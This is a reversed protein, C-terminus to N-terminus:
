FSDRNRTHEKTTFSTILLIYLFLFVMTVFSGYNIIQKNITEWIVIFSENTSGSVAPQELRQIYLPQWFIYTLLAAIIGHLWRAFFFPSFRIDTEALLSAVQAHVSFGSFGLIFAAVVAKQLLPISALDSILKNGVTIEFFGSLWPFALDSGYSVSALILNPFWAMYDIIGTVNLLRYLVSFLVIFGGIMFLTNISSTVADGLKKGFPRKDNNQEHLAAQIAVKVSHSSVAETSPSTTSKYFRMILGVVVNSSYHTFALLLGLSVNHFFGVAVAGCIFLPNSCNTFSVLREAEEQTIKKQKRLRVTFKAGSPFGSVLGMAWVFGGAGPVNFLPRMIPDLIVGLFSVVGFAILLEAAIFFPLLSPFVSNSWILLGDRSSELVEQPYIILSLTFICVLLAMILMTLERLRM